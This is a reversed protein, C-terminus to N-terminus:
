VQLRYIIETYELMSEQDVFVCVHLNETNKVNNYSIEDPSM